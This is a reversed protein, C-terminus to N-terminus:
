QKQKEQHAAMWPILEELKVPKSYLYGQFADVGIKALKNRQEQTEVFEAITKFDLSRGLHVISAIIDCNRENELVDRTLAGDLKVVRFYNTQLYMLSTHGMGFDDILFMHGKRKLGEIKDKVDVDSSLTDQETIELWLKESSIKHKHVCKGICEEFGNWSLSENTINVSIKFEGSIQQEVKSIAEAATDFIFEELNHLKKKEKALQIILPPYIFGYLPHNWRILAEAGICVNDGDVQPQYVLFLEKKEIAKILDSALIRAVGGLMDERKTLSRINNQEEARQLEKVLLGVKKAMQKESYEEFLRIFPLYIIVGAAICVLQLVSGAISGTAKYGSLLVPTTWEVERAVHPVLHLSIAAYSLIHNVVPVCIFPIVFVPNLILPIGFSVLENINMLVGPGAIKAIRKMNKSRSFILIALVLSITAGVGGMIVFVDQFSKSYVENSSITVYNQRIVADFVNSGHIGFFWLGHTLCIIILGAAFGNHFNGLFAKAVIELGEQFNNIGFCLQLFLRIGAFVLVTVVAPFIAEVAQMYNINSDANVQKIHFFRSRKITYYLRGTVLALFMATFTHATGLSQVQFDDYQVGFYGALSMLTIVAMVVCDGIGAHENDSKQELLAYNVSIAVALVVSFFQFTGAYIYNLVDLYWGNFINPLVKQYAQIPLSKLMLAFSGTVILPIMMLLGQRIAAFAPSNEFFETCEFLKEKCKKRM